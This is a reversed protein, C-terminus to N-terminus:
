ASLCRSRVANNAYSFGRLGQCAHLSLACYQLDHCLRVRMCHARTFSITHSRVHISFFVHGGVVVVLVVVSVVVVLVVSVVVCVVCVVCWAGCVGCVVCVVVVVGCVCGVEEGGLCWLIRLAVDQMSAVDAFRHMAALVEPLMGLHLADRNRASYNRLCGLAAETISPSHPHQAMLGRVIHLGAWMSYLSSHSLFLLLVSVVFEEADGSVVVM